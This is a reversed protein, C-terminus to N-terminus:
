SAVEEIVITAYGDTSSSADLTLLPEGPNSLTLPEGAYMDCAVGRDPWYVSTPVAQDTAIELSGGTAIRVTTFAATVAATTPEELATESVLGRSMGDSVPTEETAYCGAPLTITAYDGDFAALADYPSAEPEPVTSASEEVNPDGIGIHIGGGDIQVDPYYPEAWSGRVDDAKAIFIATPILMLASAFALFGLRRGSLAVLMLIVGVGTVFLAGWAVLPQVALDGQRDAIAIGAISLILWALTLLYFPAGPGPVRPPRPPRPPAVPPATYPAGYPTASTAGSQAAAAHAAAAADDAAQQASAVAEDTTSSVDTAVQEAVAARYAHREDRREQRAAERQARRDAAWQPPAAYVPAGGPGPPPTPGGRHGDRRVLYIILGIIAGIVGLPVVVMAVVAAIRFVGGGMGDDWVANSSWSWPGANDLSALGALAVLSIVVLAGVNPVGRGFDQAIIRGRRDPLLAWAAAYALLVIGNLVIALGVLGVRTWARSWGLREAVGATVGSFVRADSRTLGWGRITTFFGAEPPPTQQDTM